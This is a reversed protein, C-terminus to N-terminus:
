VKFSDITVTFTGEVKKLIEILENLRRVELEDIYDEEGEHAELKVYIHARM